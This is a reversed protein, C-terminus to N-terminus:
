PVPYVWNGELEQNWFVRLMERHIAEPEIDTFLDPHFWKAYYLLGIISRPGTLLRSDIIHIDGKKAAEIEKFGPQSLMMDYINKLEELSPTKGSDSADLYSYITIGPNKELVWEASLHPVHVPEDAAINIGGAAIIRRHGATDANSSWYMHGMSQFLVLPRETDTFNATREAIVNKYHEIFEVLKHAENEKDLLLKMQDTMQLTTDLELSRFQIVPVGAAELKNRLEQNFLTGTRAIVLDPDQKLLLEINPKSASGVNTKDKLAPPFNCEYSCAVINDGDGLAYIVEAVAPVLCVIAAPRYPVDVSRGEEDHVSVTEHGSATDANQPQQYCSALALALICIISGFLVFKKM